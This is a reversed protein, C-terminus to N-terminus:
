TPLAVVFLRLIAEAYAHDDQARLFVRPRTRLERGKVAFSGAISGMKKMVFEVVQELLEKCEEPAKGFRMSIRIEHEHLGGRSASPRIGRSSETYISLSPEEDPNFDSFQQQIDEVETLDQVFVHRNFELDLHKFPDDTFVFDDVIAQALAEEFGELRLTSM